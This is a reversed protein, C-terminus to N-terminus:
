ELSLCSGFGESKLNWAREVACSRGQRGTPLGPRPLLGCPLFGSVFVAISRETRGGM